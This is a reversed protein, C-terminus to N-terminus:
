ICVSWIYTDQNLTFSNVTFSITFWAVLQVFVLLSLIKCLESGMYLSWKTETSLYLKHIESWKNPNPYFVLLIVVYLQSNQYIHGFFTYEEQDEFIWTSWWSQIKCIWINEINLLVNMHVYFVTLPDLSIKWKETVSASAQLDSPYEEVSCQGIRQITCSIELWHGSNLTFTMLYSAVIMIAKRLVTPETGKAFM